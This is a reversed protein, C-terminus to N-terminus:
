MEIYIADVDDTEEVIGLLPMHETGRAHCMRKVYVFM